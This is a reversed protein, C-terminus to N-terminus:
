VHEAANARQKLLLRKKKAWERNWKKVKEKNEHKYKSRAELTCIKCLRYGDKIYLNNETLEHGKYCHTKKSNIAWPSEGRRINEAQTVPELHDPNVCNRVRCLHDLQKGDPIEGVLLSYVLRHAKYSKRNVTIQGYGSKQKYGTWIWCSETIDIRLKINEPLNDFKM